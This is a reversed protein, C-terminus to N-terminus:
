SDALDSWAPLLIMVRTSGDRQAIAADGGHMRAVSRVIALGLGAGQGTRAAAPRTFREFAVAAFDPDFGSGEDAVSLACGAPQARAELLIAGEGHRLANDVLNGLAEELRVRDVRVMLGDFADVTITRSATTARRSFRVAIAALLERAEIEESPALGGGESSSLSLLDDSLRALRATEERASELAARLAEATGEGDLALDIEAKLIAVPTRLEHGADAVFERERHLALDIRALMANLTEGLDRLEDRAVPVALRAGTATGSIRAADARLSEVPRLASAAVAYGLGSALLLAVPGVILLLPVLGGVAEDRSELSAGVVVIRTGQVTSVPRALLRSRGAAGPVSAEFVITGARARARSRQDLVSEGLLPPSAALVRGRADLLQSFGEDADSVRGTGVDGLSNGGARAVLAAVEDSRTRLSEEVGDTLEHALSLRLFVGAGLLLVAMAGAFALALRWRIPIRAMM